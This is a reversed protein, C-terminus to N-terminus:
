EVGLWYRAPRQDGDVVEVEVDPGLRERVVAVADAREAADVGAGILLTALEVPPASASSQPAAAAPAPAPAVLADCLAALAALPTEAVGRVDGAVVALPQGETIRGLATRADRVAAVVEGARVASAAADAEAALREAAGPADDIGAEPGLVALAALVAPPSDAAAAVRVERLDTLEARAVSAAQHATAVANRHGPLLVVQTCGLGDIATLFGAVSPLAGSAGDLVVAGQQRALGQLGAGPLVAVVGTGPRSGRVERRARVALEDGFHVVEIASPRGVALGAEIAPGVLATHVHVKLLGGAAVVVVSDGLTELRRRLPGAVDDNADLLYQVEFPQATTAACGGTVADLGRPRLDARVPPDTGTLHGHFAGLVVQFGRAGADVVGAERLVELQDRTAEVAIATAACAAASTGVLDRGLGVARAAADAAAAIATLITGEVPEAVADTALDRARALADAYLRADVERHDAIVEVVARIVQSLIVGSNGRAGRVVGRTVARAAEQAVRRPRRGATDLAALAEVGAGVTLTLNTGTDGDPVPFVNLDDLLERHAALAAHVRAFLAPLERAALPAGLPQTM